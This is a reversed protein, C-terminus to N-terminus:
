ISYKQIRAERAEAGLFTHQRGRVSPVKQMVAGRIMVTM